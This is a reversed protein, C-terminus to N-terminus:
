EDVFLSWEFDFSVVVSFDRRGCKKSSPGLHRLFEVMTGYFSCACGTFVAHADRLFEVMTSHRRSWPPTEGGDHHNPQTVATNKEKIYNRTHILMCAPSDFPQFLFNDSVM